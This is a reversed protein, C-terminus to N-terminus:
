RQHSSPPYGGGAGTSHAKFELPNHGSFVRFAKSFASLSCFGVASAAETVNKETTLMEMAKLMRAHHVFEKWTMGMEGDFRRRFTRPSLQARSAAGALSGETLDELFGHAATEIAQTKARPLRFAPESSAQQRLFEALLGFYQRRFSDPKQRDMPWQRTYLIMERLLPTVSIIQIQGGLGAFQRPSFYLSHARANKVTTAHRLGAPIWAARQPPLMWFGAKTELHITGSFSYLLQHKSHRHFDYRLQRAPDAFAFARARAKEIGIRKLAARTEKQSLRRM